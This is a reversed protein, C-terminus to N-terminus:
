ESFEGPEGASTLPYLGAEAAAARWGTADEGVYRYLPYNNYTIQRMGNRDVESVWNQDLGEGLLTNENAIVPEFRDDVVLDQSQSAFVPRQELPDGLFQNGASDAILIMAFTENADVDQTTVTVNSETDSATDVIVDTDTMVETVVQVEVVDTQTLVEVETVVDTDVLTETVVTTSVADAEDDTAELAEVESELEASAEVESELVAAEEQVVVDAGAPEVAQPENSGCAAVVLALLLMLPVYLMHKRNTKYM